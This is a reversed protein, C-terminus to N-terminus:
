LTGQISPLHREILEEKSSKHFEMGTSVHHLHGKGPVSSGAVGKRGKEVRSTFGRLEGVLLRHSPPFLARLLATPALWGLMYWSM